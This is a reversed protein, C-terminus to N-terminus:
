EKRDFSNVVPIIAPERKLREKIFKELRQVINEALRDSTYYRRLAKNAEEEVIQQLQTLLEGSQKIYIFGKTMIEIDQALSREELNLLVNVVVVGSTGLQKREGLVAPGVDGVGTGSVLLPFVKTNGTIKFGFEGNGQVFDGKKAIIINDKNIGVSEATRGHEQLFYQYGHVPMFYKPRILNLMIKHDEQYGHGSTFFDVSESTEVIAGKLALKDILTQVDENNGPITAASIVVTDGEKIEINRYGENSAMRSLAANNEGQSGTTLIMVNEDNYRNVKELPIFVDPNAEMYGIQKAIDFTQQMGYGAVAVKRDLEEAIKVLQYLRGVLGSFTAIIVRGRTAEILSKLNKAVESESIPHGKRMANTSDSLMLDVGAAGISAMRAYDAVPENVPSNDFKFDGTHVVTAVPTKIVVGVAQPISHNVRFFSLEFSDAKLHSNENIVHLKAKQDLGFEELKRRVLEITFETGWIDPSELREILYPIAGIHDLHGHTLVIGEIKAKRHNLYDPNPVVYDVGYMEEEPFGLGMDVILIQGKFEFVTCNLGIEEVGGLPIVRLKNNEEM